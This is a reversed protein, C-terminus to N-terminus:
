RVKIYKLARRIKALREAEYDRRGAEARVAGGLGILALVGAGWIYGLIMEM